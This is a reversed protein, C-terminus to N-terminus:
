HDFYGCISLPFFATYLSNTCLIQFLKESLISTGVIRAPERWLFLRENWFVRLSAIDSLFALSRALLM